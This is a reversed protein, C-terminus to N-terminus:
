RRSASFRTRGAATDLTRRREVARPSGFARPVHRLFSLRSGPVRVVADKTTAVNRAVFVRFWSSLRKTSRANKTDEHSRPQMKTLAIEHALGVIITKAGKRGRLSHQAKANWRA